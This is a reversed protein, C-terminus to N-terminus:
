YWRRIPATSTSTILKGPPRRYLLDLGGSGIIQTFTAPLPSYRDELEALAQLGRGPHPRRDPGDVDLVFGGPAGRRRHEVAVAVVV